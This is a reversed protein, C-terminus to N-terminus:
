CFAAIVFGNDATAGKEGTVVDVKTGDIAEPATYIPYLDTSNGGSPRGVGAAAMAVCNTLDRNFTVTYEGTGTREAAIVGTGYDLVGASTVAGFLKTAPDGKDGTVGTAGKDGKDGKAGTAGKGGQLGPPGPQGTQNWTIAFEGPTSHRGRRRAKHCSSASKVIRLVGTQNSVCGHFVGGRDPVGSLAYAGGGLAVFMAGTAMVNAYTFRSRIRKLM